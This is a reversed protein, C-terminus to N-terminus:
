PRGTSVTQLFNIVKTRGDTSALGSYPKMNNGPVVGDPNAIFRELKEEDWVFGADKIASSYSYDPLSGAKRGIIKYLNPGQRNDGEKISHCTRCVNNFVQQESAAEKDQSALEQSISSHSSLMYAMGSLMVILHLWDSHQGRLDRPWDANLSALFTLRQRGHGNEVRGECCKAVAGKCSHLLNSGSACADRLIRLLMTRHIKVRISMIRPWPCASAHVRFRWCLGGLVNHLDTWSIHMIPEIAHSEPHELWRM